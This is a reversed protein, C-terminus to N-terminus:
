PQMTERMEKDTLSYGSNRDKLWTIIEECWGYEYMESKSGNLQDLVWWVKHQLLPGEKTGTPLCKIVYRKPDNALDLSVM